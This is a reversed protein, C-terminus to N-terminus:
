GPRGTAKPGPPGGPITGDASVSLTITDNDVRNYCCILAWRRHPSRNQKSRHLTNSHCFVADGSELVCHVLKLRATIEAMREPDALNRGDGPVPVHDIRGLLHPGQVM